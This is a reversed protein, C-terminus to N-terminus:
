ARRRRKAAFLGALALTAVASPTPIQILFLRDYALLAGAAGDPDFLGIGTISGTDSIGTASTLTWTTADAPSLLTNLDVAAANQDWYVARNGVLVGGIYKEAFGIAIGASNIAYADSSAVGTSSTGLTGLETAITSGADWRVARSGLYEGATYKKAYGVASGAANIACAESETAGNSTGLNGLETAITSGADWRVARTGYDIVGSYKGASGVVTGATNIAYAVTHAVLQNNTGLHGLETATTGGAAWRVARKGYFTNGSHKDAFGVATGLPNIAYARSYTPGVISLGLGGLEIAVTSGANWRVAREGSAISTYFKRAYGVATGASNIDVAASDTYERITVDNPSIGTGINGLEVVASSGPDWRVARQGFYSGGNYKSALGVTVGTANTSFSATQTYGLASFGLNGLETWGNENLRIARSGRSTGAVFKTTNGSGSGKYTAPYDFDSPTLASTFGSGTSADYTPGGFITVSALTAQSGSLTAIIAASLAVTGGACIQKM